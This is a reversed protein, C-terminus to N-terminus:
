YACLSATENVWCGDERYLTGLRGHAHSAYPEGNWYGEGVGKSEIRLMAFYKGNGGNIQFSGDRGDPIFLCPGRIYEEGDVVLLCNAPRGRREEEEAAVPSSPLAITCAALWAAPLFSPKM